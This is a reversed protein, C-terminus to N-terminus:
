YEIETETGFLEFQANLINSQSLEQSRKDPQSGGVFIMYRGQKLLCRGQEDIFAMQRPTINFSVQTKQGKKLKIKKFDQLSYNPVTCSADLQKIYLEVVEQGDLEGINEVEVIVELSEGINLKDKSLEINSYRFKTYSLGYGFPYLAENKMYRYTRGEMCYDTFPPLEELSKYFTVPLRGSPNFNGFIVDAIANGGEEGPYWAQIIADVNEDAWNIALASGSLLVLIIPKGVKYIEELLEQQVQPLNLDVKDGGAQSNYADGAEGEIQPSLGLCMVVVDAKEAATIAEAFGGKFNNAFEFPRGILDCGKAYYIRTDKSARNRIGDIPTVYKSPWGNYNGLLVENCLANPGIVAISKIDKSLPLINNKNKLLVISEQASKLALQRHEESDVVEYPIKSYPVLEDPDFMGLKFRAKFLRKVAEDIREESVLGAVVATVLHKYADGCNLDCGGNMAFAASEAATETVHQHLHLNCIAGCDSVVFGEFGWEERLIDELLLKNGCCPVGNLQNYACMISEAKAEKICEKFAPLYTEMLDKISVESNFNERGQEPGSHAAFHKPTAVTKLYKPDNGQLGKIFNVGMRGTLYPDEGFTEHGRGWRPDRFINVNPSWITLGKFIGRDNHKIYEHYKARAEDSIACAIRYMLEENFTAALGIAQPFVTATGARAVGHLAENWWNYKPIDLREIEPANHVLQSVKEALTMRSVLDEVREEISLEPNKYLPLNDKNM